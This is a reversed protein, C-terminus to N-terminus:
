TLADGYRNTFEASQLQGSKNYRYLIVTMGILLSHAVAFLTVSLLAGVAGVVSSMHM